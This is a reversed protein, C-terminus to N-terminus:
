QDEPYVEEPLVPHRLQCILLNLAAEVIEADLSFIKMLRDMRDETIM